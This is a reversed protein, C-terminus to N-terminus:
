DQLQKLCVMEPLPIFARPCCSSHLRSSGLARPLSTSSSVLSTLWILYPKVSWQLSRVNIKFSILPWKLPQAFTRCLGTYMNFPDKQSGNPAYAILFFSFFSPFDFHFCFCFRRHITPALAFMLLRIKQSNINKSHIDQKWKLHSPKLDQAWIWKIEIKMNKGAILKTKFPWFSYSWGKFTARLRKKWFAKISTQKNQRYQSKLFYFFSPWTQNYHPLKTSWVSPYM